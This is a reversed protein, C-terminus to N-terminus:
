HFLEDLKSRPPFLTGVTVSDWSCSTQPLPPVLRSKLRLSPAVPSGALTITWKRTPGDRRGTTPLMMQPCGVDPPPQFFYQHGDNEPLKLTQSKTDLGGALAGAQQRRRARSGGKEPGQPGEGAPPNPRQSGSPGSRREAGDDVAADDLDAHLLAIRLDM